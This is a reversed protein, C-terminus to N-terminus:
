VVVAATTTIIPQYGELPLAKSSLTRWINELQPRQELRRSDGHTWPPRQECPRRLSLRLSSVAGGARLTLTWWTWSPPVGELPPPFLLVVLGWPAWLNRQLTRNLGDRFLSFPSMTEHINM